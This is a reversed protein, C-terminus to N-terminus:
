SKGASAPTRRSSCSEATVRSSSSRSRYLASRKSRVEAADYRPGHAQLDDEIALLVVADVRHRGVDALLVVHREFRLFDPPSSIRDTSCRSMPTLPVCMLAVNRSITTLPLFYSLTSAM